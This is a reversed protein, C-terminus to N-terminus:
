NTSHKGLMTNWGRASRSGAHYYMGTVVASPQYLCSILLEPADKAVYPTQALRLYM